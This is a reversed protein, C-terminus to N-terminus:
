KLLIIPRALSLIQYEWQLALKAFSMIKNISQKWSTAQSGIWNTLVLGYRLYPHFKSTWESHMEGLLQASFDPLESVTCREWYSRASTLSSWVSKRLLTCCTSSIDNLDGWPQMVTASVLLPLSSGYATLSVNLTV